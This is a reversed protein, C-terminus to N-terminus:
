DAPMDAELLAAYARPLDTPTLSSGLPATVYTLELPQGRSDVLASASVNEFRPQAYGKRWTGVLRPEFIETASFATARGRPETAETLFQGCIFLAPFSM